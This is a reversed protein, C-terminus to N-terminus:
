KDQSKKSSCDSWAVAWEKWVPRLEEGGWGRNMLLSRPSIIQFGQLKSTGVHRINHDDLSVM